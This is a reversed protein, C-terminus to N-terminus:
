HKVEPTAEKKKAPPNGVSAQVDAPLNAKEALQSLQLARVYAAVRWRDAPDPLQTAHSAMGNYGWTIVQYIYGVNVKDLAMRVGLRSFGRSFGQPHDTYDPVAGGSASDVKMSSWDLAGIVEDPRAANVVDNATPHAPDRHYSPPRLYGREPIKGMGDGRAGHCEACVARFLYGGRQLDHKTIAFPFAAVFNENATPAGPVTMLDKMDAPVNAGDYAPKPSQGQETLWTTLPDGTVSQARHVTGPELPRASQQNPFLTSEEYPRLYPQTAMKQQCGTVLAAAALATIMTTKM